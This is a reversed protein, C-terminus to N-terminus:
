ASPASELAADILRLLSVGGLGVLHARAGGIHEDPVGGAPLVRALVLVAYAHDLPLGEDHWTDLVDRVATAAGPSGALVDLAVQGTRRVARIWRGRLSAAADVIARLREVDRQGAAAQIGTWTTTTSNVGTAELALGREAEALAAGSDGSLLLIYAKARAFWTVFQVQQWQAGLEAELADLAALAGAPDGRHARLMASTFELGSRDDSALGEVASLETVIDDATTWEGIDVGLEAANALALDQTPRASASAAVRACEMLTSFGVRPNDDAQRMALNMLTTAMDLPGSIRRAIEVRSQQLADAEWQRGVSSLAWSRSGSVALLLEDDDLRQALVMAEDTLREAETFRGVAVYGTALRGLLRARTDPHDDGVRDLIESVQEVLSAVREAGFRLGSMPGCVLRAESVVDGIMRFDSLAAMLHLHADDVHNAYGAAM